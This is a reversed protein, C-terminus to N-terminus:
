AIRNEDLEKLISDPLVCHGHYKKNAWAAQKGNLGKHYADIFRSSRNAFESAFVKLLSPIWHKTSM